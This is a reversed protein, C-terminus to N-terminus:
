WSAALGFTSVPRGRIDTAVSAAASVAATEEVDFNRTLLAGAILGVAMGGLCFRATGEVDGPRLLGALSTGTVLGAFGSLDILAVHGRSFDYQAGLVAGTIMGLNLGALSMPGGMRDDEGFAVWALVGAATGWMAGSNFMAADGAAVEFRRAILTATIGVGLSGGVTLLSTVEPHDDLAHNQYITNALGLGEAAGWVRFGIALSTQGVPVDDPLLFYPAAFGLAGGVASAAAITGNSDTLGAGLLGGEILGFTTSAILLEPKGNKPRSLKMQVHLVTPADAEVLIDRKETPRGEAEVSILHHGIPLNAGFSGVGAVKDDVLIRADSPSVSVDLTGTKPLLRYVYSYPQGIQATITESIPQYGDLEVRLTYTGASVRMPEANATARSSGVTGSTGELTVQAGPPDSAVRIRAPLSRLVRLRNEINAREAENERTSPLIRLYADFWIVAQEYDVMREYAQAIAHVADPVPVLCYTARFEPISREYEGQSYLDRGRDYHEAARAKRTAPADDIPPPCALPDEVAAQARAPEPPAFIGLVGTASLAAVLARM